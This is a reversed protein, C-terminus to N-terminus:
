RSQSAADEAEMADLMLFGEEASRTQENLVTADEDLEILRNLVARRDSATLLSLQALISFRRNRFPARFFKGSVRPRSRKHVRQPVTM